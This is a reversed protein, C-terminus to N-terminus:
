VRGVLVFSLIDWWPAAPALLSPSNGFSMGHIIEYGLGRPGDSTQETSKLYPTSATVSWFWGLQLVSCVVPHPM